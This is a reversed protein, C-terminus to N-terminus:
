YKSKLGSGNAAKNTADIKIGNTSPAQKYRAAFFAKEAFPLIIKTKLEVTATIMNM